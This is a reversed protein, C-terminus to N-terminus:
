MGCQKKIFIEEVAKLKGRAQGLDEAVQGDGDIMIWAPWLFFAGIWGYMKDSKYIKEQRTELISVESRLADFESEIQDCEWNAYTSSAVFNASIGAAPSACGSVFLSICVVFGIVIRVM